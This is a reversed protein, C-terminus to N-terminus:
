LVERDGRYGRSVAGWESAESAGLHGDGVNWSGGELEGVQGM